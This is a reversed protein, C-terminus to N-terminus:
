VFGLESLRLKKLIRSRELSECFSEMENSFKCKDLDVEDLLLDLKNGGLMDININKLKALNRGNIGTIIADNGM